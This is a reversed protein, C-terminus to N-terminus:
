CCKARLYKARLREESFPAVGRWFARATRQLHRAYANEDALERLLALGRHALVGEYSRRGCTTSLVFPSEGVVRRRTGSLIGAWVRVSDVLIMTVLVLFVGCVVADLRANFIVTQTESVEGCYRARMSPASCGDAQALFGIAPMPSFIKQWAATFTVVLLWALPVCTIWMYKARHMRVLITTAVCLAIAALLQNAIGFLPWLSNIGGLPDCCARISSIAGRRARDGRKDHDRGADLENTGAAELCEGAPGAAHVARRADRRRHDDPHVAGRVHHRLSVLLGSDRTRRRQELFYAGDRARAFARRRDPLVADERRRRAGPRWRAATVPFAGPLQDDGGGCGADRGCYRGALERRFLRGAAARLRRDDGHDRCFKGAADLRLGGAACAVGACDDEAHHRAFDACPIGLDRRLRDHHLLVSIDQGRLDTGHRGVFRTLAPMQLEPRVFLIGVALMMVVGLKVFTSLYDRPALLLWVPLASALFGYVIMAFALTMASLTFLPALSARSAVWQGGFISLLVLVFGIASVELVKGPRWYRLYLGMFIAIPM